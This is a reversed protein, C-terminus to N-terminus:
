LLVQRRASKESKTEEPGLWLQTFFDGEAFEKVVPMVGGVTGGERLGNGAQRTGWILSAVFAHERGRQDQATGVQHDQTRGCSRQFRKETTSCIKAIKSRSSTNEQGGAKSSGKQGSYNPDARGSEFDDPGEASQAV